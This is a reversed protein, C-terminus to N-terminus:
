KEEVRSAYKPSSPPSAAPLELEEEVVVEWGLQYKKAADRYLAITADEELEKLLVQPDGVASIHYPPSYSKTGVLIVNGVCRIPTTGTIREDLVTIGEAGGRRLANLVADVDQQHVVLEDPSIEEDLTFEAPADTLIVTVGPGKIPSTVQDEDTPDELPTTETENGADVRAQFTVVEDELQQVVQQQQKALSILNNEETKSQSTATSASIGFLLGASALAGLSALKYTRKKRM